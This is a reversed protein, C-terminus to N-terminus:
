LASIGSRREDMEKEGTRASEEEEVEGVGDTVSLGWPFKRHLTILCVISRLNRVTSNWEEPKNLKRAMEAVEVDRSMQNWLIIMNEPNVKQSNSDRLARLANAYFTLRTLPKSFNNWVSIRSAGSAGTTSSGSQGLPRIKSPTRNLRRNDLSSDSRGSRLTEDFGHTIVIEPTTRSLESFKGTEPDYVMIEEPPWAEIEDENPDVIPFYLTIDGFQGHELRHTYWVLASITEDDMDISSDLGSAPYPDM